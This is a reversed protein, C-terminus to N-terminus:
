EDWPLGVLKWTGVGNAGTTQQVWLRGRNDIMHRVLTGSPLAFAQIQVPRDPFEPAPEAREPMAARRGRAWCDPCLGTPDLHRQVGGCVVCLQHTM